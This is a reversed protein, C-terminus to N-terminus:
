WMVGAYRDTLKNDISKMWSDTDDNMDVFSNSFQKKSIVTQLLVKM